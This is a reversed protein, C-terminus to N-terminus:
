VNVSGFVWLMSEARVNRPLLTVSTCVLCALYGAMIFYVVTSSLVDNTTSFPLQEGRGLYWDSLTTKTPRTVFHQFRPSHPGKRAPM